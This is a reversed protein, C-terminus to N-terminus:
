DDSVDLEVGEVGKKFYNTRFSIGDFELNYWQIFQRKCKNCKRENYYRGGVMNWDIIEIDESECFPCTEDTIRKLIM